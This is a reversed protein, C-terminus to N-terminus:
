QERDRMAAVVSEQRARAARRVNSGLLALDVPKSFFLEFKARSNRGRAYGEGLASIMFVPLGRTSPQSQLIDCVSLGDLDPLMIDLLIVDPMEARALRLAQIGNEAHITDCGQKRLNFELLEAFEPEDDVILVKPKM